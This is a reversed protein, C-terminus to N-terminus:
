YPNTSQLRRWGSRCWMWRSWCCPGGRWLCRAPSRRRASWTRSHPAPTPSPRPPLQPQAPSHSACWCAAATQLCAGAHASGSRPFPHQVCGASAAPLLARGGPEVGGGGGATGLRGAPRGLHEPAPQPAHSTPHHLSSPLAQNCPLQELLGPSACSAPGLRRSSLGGDWGGCWGGSGWVEGAAARYCAEAAASEVAPRGGPAPLSCSGGM